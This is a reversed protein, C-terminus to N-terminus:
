GLDLGTSNRLLVHAGPLLCEPTDPLTQLSTGVMGTRSAGELVTELDTQASVITSAMYTSRAVNHEM